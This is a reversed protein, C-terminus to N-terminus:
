TWREMTGEILGEINEICFIMVEKAIDYNLRIELIAGFSYKFIDFKHKKFIFGRDVIMENLEDLSGATLDDQAIISIDVFEDGCNINFLIACIISSIKWELGLMDNHYTNNQWKSEELKLLTAYSNLFELM